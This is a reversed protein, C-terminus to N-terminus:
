SRAFICILIHNLVGTEAKRCPIGFQHASDAGLRSDFDERSELKAVLRRFGRHGSPHFGSRVEIVLLRTGEKMSV